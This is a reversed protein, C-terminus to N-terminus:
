SDSNKKSSHGRGQFYNVGAWKQIDEEDMRKKLVKKLNREFGRKEFYQKYKASDKFKQIMQVHSLESGDEWKKIARKVIMEIEKGFYEHGADGAIASFIKNANDLKDKPSFLHTYVCIDNLIELNSFMTFELMSLSRYVASLIILSFKRYMELLIKDIEEKELYDSIDCEIIFLLISTIYRVYIIMCIYDFNERILENNKELPHEACLFKVDTAVLRYLPFISDILVYDSFLLGMFDNGPNKNLKGVGIYANAIQSNFLYNRLTLISKINFYDRAYLMLIISETAEQPSIKDKKLIKVGNRFSYTTEGSYMQKNDKIMDNITANIHTINELYDPSKFKNMYSHIIRLFKKDISEATEGIKYIADLSLCMKLAANYLEIRFDDTKDCHKDLLSISGSLVSIYRGYLDSEKKFYEDLRKKVNDSITQKVGYLYLGKGVHLM